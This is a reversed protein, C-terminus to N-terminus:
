FNIPPHHHAQLAPRKSGSSHGIIRPTCNLTRYYSHIPTIESSIVRKSGESKANPPLMAKRRFILLILTVSQQALIQHRVPSVSYYINNVSLSMASIHEQNNSLKIVTLNLSLLNMGDTNTIEAWICTHTLGM